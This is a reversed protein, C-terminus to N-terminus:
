VLTLALSLNFALKPNLIGYFWSKLIYILVILLPILFYLFKLSRSVLRSFFSVIASNLALIVAYCSYFSSLLDLMNPQILSLAGIYLIVLLGLTPV